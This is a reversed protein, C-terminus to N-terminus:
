HNSSVKEAIVLLKLPRGEKPLVSGLRLLYYSVYRYLLRLRRKMSMGAVNRKDKLAEKSRWFAKQLLLQLMIAERYVCVRKFGTRELLTDISKEGFFFLHDPYFFQSYYSMYKEDVDAINGTEFVLLGNKKLARNIDRFVGIPDSLHSLVDRHYVIDFDKGGFSVGSLPAHECPIQLKENIWRAEIPNLEIGYPEYGWKRAEVLFGGGGPGLELVSGAGRYNRVKALTRAAQMRNFGDFQFQSDAYLVAHEETYLRTVETADPRPSIYILNCKNCKVGMFGHETIAVHHSPVGCFICSNDEM